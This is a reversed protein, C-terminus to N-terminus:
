QLDPSVCRAPMWKFFRLMPTEGLVTQNLLLPSLGTIGPKECAEKRKMRTCEHANTHM